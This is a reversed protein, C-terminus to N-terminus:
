TPSGEPTTSHTKAPCIASWVERSRCRSPMATMRNDPQPVLVATIPVQGWDDRDGVIWRLHDQYRSEGVVELTEDGDYLTATVTQTADSQPPEAPPPERPPEPPPLTAGNPPPPPPTETPTEKRQLRDLWRM